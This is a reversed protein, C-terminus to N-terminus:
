HSLWRHVSCCAICMSNIKIKQTDNLCMCSSQEGDDSTAHEALKQWTTSVFDGTMLHSRENFYPVRTLM